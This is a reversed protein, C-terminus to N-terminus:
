LEGRIRKDMEAMQCRPVGCDATCICDDGRSTCCPCLMAITDGTEPPDAPLRTVPKRPRALWVTLRILCIGTYATGTCAMLYWLWSLM